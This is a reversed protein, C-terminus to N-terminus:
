HLNYIIFSKIYNYQYARIFIHVGTIIAVQRWTRTDSSNFHDLKQIFWRDETIVNITTPSKPEGIGDFQNIMRYAQATSWWVCFSFLYIIFKM